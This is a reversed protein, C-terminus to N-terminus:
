NAPYEQSQKPLGTNEFSSPPQFTPLPSNGLKAWGRSGAVSICWFLTTPDVVERHPIELHALTSVLLYVQKEGRMEDGRRGNKLVGDDGEERKTYMSRM